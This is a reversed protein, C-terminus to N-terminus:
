PQRALAAMALVDEEFMEGPMALGVRGSRSIGVTTPITRLLGLRLRMSEAEQLSVAFGYGHQQLYSRVKAPDRDTAFTLVRLRQGAVAEHLKQVHANHRRCFPCHTAWFVLVAATDVWDTGPIVSGDLLTIAPWAFPTPLPGTRQGWAPQPLAVM